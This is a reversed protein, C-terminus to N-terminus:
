RGAHVRTPAHGCEAAVTARVGKRYGMEFGSTFIIFVGVLFLAWEGVRM